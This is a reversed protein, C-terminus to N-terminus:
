SERPPIRIEMRVKALLAMARSISDESVMVVDLGLDLDLLSDGRILKIESSFRESSPAGERTTADLNEDLGWPPPRRVGNVLLLGLDLIHIGRCASPLHTFESRGRCGSPTWRGVAHM